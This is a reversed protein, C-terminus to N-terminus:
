LNESQFCVPNNILCELNFANMFIEPNKNDDTLSIETIFMIKDHRYTLEGLIKSLKDHFIKM